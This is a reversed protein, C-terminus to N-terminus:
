LVTDEKDDIIPDYRASTEYPSIEEEFVSRAWTHLDKRKQTEFCSAAAHHVIAATFKDSLFIEDATIQPPPPNPHPPYIVYYAYGGDPYVDLRSDEFTYTPYDATAARGSQELRRHRETSRQIARVDGDTFVRSYLIRAVREPVDGDPFDIILQPLHQAKVRGVLEVIAEYSRADLNEDSFDTSPSGLVSSDSSTNEGVLPVQDLLRRIRTRLGSYTLNAM